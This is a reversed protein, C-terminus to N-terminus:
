AEHRSMYVGAKPLLSIVRHKETRTSLVAYLACGRSLTIGKRRMPCFYIQGRRGPKLLLTPWSPAHVSGWGQGQRSSDPRAFGSATGEVSPRAGAVARETCAFGM